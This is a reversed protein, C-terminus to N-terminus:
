VQPSSQKDGTPNDMTVLSAGALNIDMNIPTHNAAVKDEASLDMVVKKAIGAMMKITNPKNTHAQEPLILLQICPTFYFNNQRLGGNKM